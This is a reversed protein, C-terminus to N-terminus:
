NAERKQALLDCGTDYCVIDVRGSASFHARVLDRGRFDPREQAEKRADDYFRTASTIDINPAPAHTSIERTETIAVVEGPRGCGTLTLSCVLLACCPLSHKM